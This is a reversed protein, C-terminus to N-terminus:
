QASKQLNLGVYLERIEEVCSAMSTFIRLTQKFNFQEKNYM